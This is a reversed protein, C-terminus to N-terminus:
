VRKRTGRRIARARVLEAVISVAIEEPTEAGIPLGIPCHVRLLAADSVGETRLAAYIADRKRESGIMGIYAAQSDLVQALVTKDYQHGRTVIVVYSEADIALCRKLDAEFDPLVAINEAMPFRERNAYQQRDDAVVVRFGVRRAAEATHRAVHGAGLLLLRGTRVLPLTLYSRGLHEFREAGGKRLTDLVRDVLDKSVDRPISGQCLAWGAEVREEGPVAGLDLLMIVDYGADFMDGAGRYLHMTEPVPTLLQLFLEQRGGCIMDSEAADGASLDFRIFRLSGPPAGLLERGAAQVEAEMRGGGVTGVATGDKFLLMLAGSGRPASGEHGLVWAKVVREGAELREVLTSLLNSM